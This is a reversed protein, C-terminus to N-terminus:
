EGREISGRNRKKLADANAKVAGNFETRLKEDSLKIAVHVLKENGQVASVLAKAGAKGCALNQDSLDLHTVSSGALAAAIVAIGNTSLENCALNIKTLSRNFPLVTSAFIEAFKNGLKNGSLDLEVVGSEALATCTYLHQWKEPLAMFEKSKPIAFVEPGDVGKLAMITAQMGTLEEIPGLEAAVTAMSSRQAVIAQNAKLAADLAYQGDKTTCRAICEVTVRNAAIGAIIAVLGEGGVQTKQGSLDLATISVSEGLAGGLAICGANGIDNGKLDLSIISSNTRLTSALVTAFDDGLQLGAAAFSTISANSALAQAVDMIQAQKEEASLRKFALDATYDVLNLTGGIAATSLEQLLRHAPCMLAPASDGGKAPAPPAVSMVMRSPKRTQHGRVVAQIKVAADAESMAPSTPEASVTAKRSRHGRFAAQIRIAAEEEETAPVFAAEASSNKSSKGGMGPFSSNDRLVRRM